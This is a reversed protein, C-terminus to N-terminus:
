EHRVGGNTGCGAGPRGPMVPGAHDLDDTPVQEAEDAGRKAVDHVENAVLVRVQQEHLFGGRAYIFQGADQAAAILTDQLRAADM